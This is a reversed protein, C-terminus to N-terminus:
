LKTRKTPANNSSGEYGFKAMIFAKWLSPSSHVFKSLNAKIHDIYEINPRAGKEGERVYREAKVRQVWLRQYEKNQEWVYEGASVKKKGAESVYRKPIFDQYQM